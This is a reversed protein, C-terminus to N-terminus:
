YILNVTIFVYLDNNQVIESKKLLYKFRKNADTGGCLQTCVRLFVLILIYIFETLFAPCLM